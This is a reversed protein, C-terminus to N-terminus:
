DCCEALDRFREIDALQFQHLSPFAVLRTRKLDSLVRCVTEITLGLYDAIDQRSMPLAVASGNRAGVSEALKLLFTMVREKATQRGLMILHDQMAMLRRFLFDTLRQRMSPLREGMAEVQRQPYAIVELDCAAEATFRHESLALFGCYDGPLVFDAIQRRGDVLHKCLRIAGSVVKYSFAAEDGESFITEGRAFRLKIGIRDLAGLGEDDRAAAAAVVAYPVKTPASRPAYAISM